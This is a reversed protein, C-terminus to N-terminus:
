WWGFVFLFSNKLTATTPDVTTVRDLVGAVARSVWCWWWSVQVSPPCGEHYEVVVADLFHLPLYIRLDVVVVLLFSCPCALGKVIAM